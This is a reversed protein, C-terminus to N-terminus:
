RVLQSAPVLTVGQGALGPLSLALAKITAPHPHCIAIASGNKRALKIAQKLQNLIYNQDQENDLFVNRRGSKIGLQQAVRLGTSASSTASDIFFLNNKKLVQLVATMKEAHETFESGMHNNAGSAGPFRQIFRTVRGQLEEGDMSVLLGNSELRQAPWGKPQMPIHIMAAINNSAAYAAVEADSHLGPIIAFTLPVKISALSRAEALSSGMDDIIVALLAPSGSVSETPEIEINSRKPEGTQKDAGPPTVTSSTVPTQPVVAATVPPKVLSPEVKQPAVAHKRSPSFLFYGAVVASILLLAVIAATRRGSTKKRFRNKSSFAM